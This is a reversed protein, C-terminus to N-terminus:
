TKGLVTKAKEVAAEITFSGMSIRLKSAARRILSKDPPSIKQEFRETKM